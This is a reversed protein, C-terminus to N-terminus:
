EKNKPPINERLIIEGNLSRLIVVKLGRENANYQVFNLARRYEERALRLAESLGGKYQEAYFAKPYGPVNDNGSEAIVKYGEKTSRPM